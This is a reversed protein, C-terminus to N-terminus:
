QFRLFDNGTGLDQLMEGIDEEFLKL